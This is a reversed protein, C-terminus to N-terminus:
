KKLIKQLKNNLYLYTEIDRVYIYLAKRGRTFLINLENMYLQIDRTSKTKAKTYLFFKRDNKVIITQPLYIFSYDVDFSLAHYTTGYCKEYAGTLLAFKDDSKGAREFIKGGIIISGSVDNVPSFIKKLGSANDYEKIFSNEDYFLKISYNNLFSIDIKNDNRTLFDLAHNVEDSYRRSKTLIKSFVEYGLSKFYKKLENADEFTNDENWAQRNDGFFIAVKCRDMIDKMDAISLRQAEDVIAIDDKNLSDIFTKTRFTTKSEFYLHGGLDLSYYLKSNMVLIKTNDLEFLFRLALVSKGTGANGYVFIAKYDDLKALVNNYVRNTDEYYHYNKERIDKCVKAISAIDSFQILYQDVAKYENLSSFLNKLDDVNVIKKHEVGNYFYAEYFEENIIGITIYKSDKILQPLHENKRKEIQSDIKKSVEKFDGNKVEVDIFIPEGHASMVTVIDMETVDTSYNFVFLNDDSCKYFLADDYKKFARLLNYFENNNFGSWQFGNFSDLGRFKSVDVPMDLLKNILIRNLRLGKINM